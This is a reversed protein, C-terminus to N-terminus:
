GVSAAEPGRSGADCSVADEQASARRVAKECYLREDALRLAERVDAAESPVRAAGFSAAVRFGNGSESLSQAGLRALREGDDRPCRALVCFEDGGMRYATARGAMAQRLRSALRALLADGAPHGLTDNYNKFGNLDYIVLTLEDTGDANIELDLDQELARRNGLGTLVDTTAERRSEDLLREVDGHLARSRRFYFIFAGLLLVIVLSAGVSEELRATRAARSYDADVLAAANDAANASSTESLYGRMLSAPVASLSIHVLEPHEAMYVSMWRHRDLNAQIAERLSATGDVDSYKSLQALSAKVQGAASATDFVYRAIAAHTISLGSTTGPSMFGGIGASQLDNFNAQLQALAVQAVRSQDARASLSIVTGAGLAALLVAILLIFRHVTRLGRGM